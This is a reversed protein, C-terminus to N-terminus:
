HKLRTLIKYGESSLDELIVFLVNLLPIRTIGCSTRNTFLLNYFLQVRNIAMHDLPLGVASSLDLTWCHTTERTKSRYSNGDQYTQCDTCLLDGKHEEICNPIDIHVCLLTSYIHFKSNIQMRTTIIKPSIGIKRGCIRYLRESPPKFIRV